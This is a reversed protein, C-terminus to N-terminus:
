LERLGEGVVYENGCMAHMIEAQRVRDSLLPALYCELSEINNTWLLASDKFRKTEDVKRKMEMPNYECYCELEKSLCASEKVLEDYTELLFQRNNLNNESVDNNKDYNERRSMELAINHDTAALLEVLHSQEVQLNNMVKERNRKADSTFCWYWNGSGIKEMRILNEDLLAQLYDKAQMQNVSAVSQMIKELEKLTFVEMTSKLYELVKSLKATPPLNKQGM